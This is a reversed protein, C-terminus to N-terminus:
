YRGGAGGGGSRGGGFGGFGGFGGSSRGTSIGGFGGSSYSPSRAASRRAEDAALRAVHASHESDAKEKWKAVEALLSTARNHAAGPGGVGGPTWANAAAAATDVGRRTAESVGSSAASRLASACAAAITKALDGSRIMRDAVEHHKAAARMGDVSARATALHRKATALFAAAAAIDWADIKSSMRTVDATVETVLEDTTNRDWPVLVADPWKSLVSARESEAHKADARLGVVEQEIRKRDTRMANAAMMESSVHTATSTADTAVDYEAVRALIEETSMSAAQDSYAEPWVVAALRKTLDAAAPHKQEEALVAIREVSRRGNSLDIWRQVASRHADEKAKRKRHDAVLLVILGVVVGLILLIMLFGYWFEGSAKEDAAQRAADIAARHERTAPDLEDRVARAFAVIGEPGTGGKLAPLLVSRQLQAVRADPLYGEAGYGTTTWYARESPCWMILVGGDTESAGVGWENFMNVTYGAEDEGNLTAVVAVAIEFGSGEKFARLEAELPQELNDPLQGVYDNVHGNPPPYNRQAFAFATAALLLLTLTLRNM